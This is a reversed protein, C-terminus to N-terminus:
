GSNSHDRFKSRWERLLRGAGDFIKSTYNHETPSLYWQVFIYISKEHISIETLDNLPKKDDTLGTTFTVAYPKPTQDTKAMPPAPPLHMNIVAKVPNGKDDTGTLNITWRPTVNELDIWL